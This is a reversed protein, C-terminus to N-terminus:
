QAPASGAANEILRVQFRVGDAYGAVSMREDIGHPRKLDSADYRFPEFRYLEKTVDGYSRADTGGVVLAPAVVTGPFVERITRELLAFSKTDIPSVDSPDRGESRFRVDVRPDKVLARVRARVIERTDGPLIRFNVGAIAQSPLVNEKPSGSLMTVATTTRLLANVGPNGSLLWDMPRGFLWLNAFVVRVWLPMEPALQEFSARTVGVIGGPMPNAEVTRIAEALIGAATQRPPTSSHGGEANAVLELTVSGKEAIGIMAVAASLGPVIGPELIAMGEDVGFEAHVGRKALLEAIKVAGNPGGVEEDHGFALLVTREPSFGQGLLLEVAECISLLASKDDISGRGWVFGDAIRGEFPPQAWREPTDVPVVDQHAMLLLPPLSPDRGEWTYLLSFDSVRELALQAHLRPYTEALWRHFGEFEASSFQAPDQFSVTQFRLSAGLRQALADADLALPPAPTAAVQRSSLSLARVLLVAALVALALSVAALFRKM